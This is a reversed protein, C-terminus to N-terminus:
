IVKSKRLKRWMWWIHLRSVVVLGFWFCLTYVRIEEAFVAAVLSVLAMGILVPEWFEPWRIWHSWRSVPKYHPCEPCDAAKQSIACRRGPRFFRCPERRGIRELEEIMIEKSLRVITQELVLPVAEILRNSLKEIFQEPTMGPPAVGKEKLIKEVEREIDM